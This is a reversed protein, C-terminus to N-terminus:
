RPIVPSVVAAPRATHRAGTTRFLIGRLVDRPTRGANLSM